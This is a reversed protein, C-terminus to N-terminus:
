SLLNGFWNFWGLPDNGQPSQIAPAASESINKVTITTPIDEIKATLDEIAATNKNQAAEQKGIESKRAEDLATKQNDLNAQIDNNQIDIAAKAAASIDGRNLAEALTLQGQQSKAIQENLTKLKEIQAIRKDYKDNIKQENNASEQSNKNISNIQKKLERAKERGIALKKERRIFEKEQALIQKETGYAFVDLSESTPIVGANIAKSVSALTKLDKLNALARGIEPNLSVIAAKIAEIGATGPQKEALQIIKEYQISYDKASIEGSAYQGSLASMYSSIRATGEKIKSISEPDVPTLYWNDYEGKAASLTRGSPNLTGDPSVGKAGESIQSFADNINKQMEIKSKPNKLSFLEPLLSVRTKKADIAIADTIATIQEKEMGQGFLDTAMAQMAKRFQLDTLSQMKKANEQYIDKYEQSQQFQQAISAEKASQDGSAVVSARIGSLQIDTGFFNNIKDIKDKTINLTEAISNFADANKRILPMVTKDFLEFATTAVATVLTLKGLVPLLKTLTGSSALGKLGGAVNGSFMSGISTAFSAMGAMQGLDGPLFMSAMALAGSAGFGKNRISNSLQQKEMANIRDSIAAANYKAKLQQLKTGPMTGAM